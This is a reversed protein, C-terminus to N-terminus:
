QWVQGLHRSMLVVLPIGILAAIIGCFVIWFMRADESDLGSMRRTLSRRGEPYRWELWRRLLDSWRKPRALLIASMMWPWGLLLVVSLSHAVRAFFESYGM